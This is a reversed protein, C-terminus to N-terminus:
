SQATFMVCALPPLQITISDPQGHWPIGSTQVGGLNGRGSGGYIKADSNLLERWFGASPVGVQYGLRPVPTFNCAILVRDGQGDNRLWTLTSQQADNCDVWEFGQPDFDHRHLAPRERYLRNLDSIWRLMGAHLPYQLLHWQVSSEHNWEDGQAIEDGMFLLKKGNQGFQLGYLLRLNAFRQWEDGPM